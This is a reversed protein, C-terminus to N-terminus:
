FNMQSPLNLRIGAKKLEPLKEQFWRLTTKNGTIVAMSYASNTQLKHFKEFFVAEGAKEDLTLANAANVITLNTQAALQQQIQTGGQLQLIKAEPLITELQKFKTIASRPSSKLIDRGDKDQLWFFIHDYRSSLKKNLDNAQMPNEVKFVMPIPEGFRQLQTILEEDPPQEFAVLISVHNRSITLDPDTQLSITRIVTGKYSLHINVNQEPFTVKAPTQISYNHFTRNLEAHLQTKSFQYPLRVLYTKRSFNSDVRTTFTQVQQESINFDALKQHILSDAQALNHLRNANGSSTALLMYGSIFCSILLLIAIIRKKKQEKM